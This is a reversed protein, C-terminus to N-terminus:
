LMSHLSQIKLKGYSGCNGSCLGCDKGGQNWKGNDLLIWFSGKNFIMEVGGEATGVVAGGGGGHEVCM